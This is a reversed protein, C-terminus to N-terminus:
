IEPVEINEFHVLERLGEEMLARAAATQRHLLAHMAADEANRNQCTASYREFALLSSVLKAVNNPCECEVQSSIELLHALQRDTYVREPVAAPTQPIQSPSSM